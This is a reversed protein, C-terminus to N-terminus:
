GLDLAGHPRAPGLFIFRLDVRAVQGRDGFHGAIQETRVVRRLLAIGLPLDEFCGRRAQRALEPRHLLGILLRREDLDELDEVIRHDKMLLRFFDCLSRRKAYGDFPARAPRGKKSSATTRSNSYQMYLVTFIPPEMRVDRM